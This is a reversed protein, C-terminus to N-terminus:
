NHNSSVDARSDRKVSRALRRVMGFRAKVMPLLLHGRADLPIFARRLAMEEPGWDAHWPTDSMLDLRGIGDDDFCARLTHGFLMQGPAQRSFEEDFAIKHMEFVDGSRVCLQSAILRDGSYLEHVEARGAEGFRTFADRFYAVLEPRKRLANGQPETGKWGAAELAVFRDIAGAMGGAATTVRYEANGLATLKNRAKRLNNRFNKSLGAVHADFSGRCDIFNWHGTDPWAADWEGGREWLRSSADAPGAALLPGHGRSARLHAALAPVLAARADDEPGVIDGLLWAGGWLVAEVRVPLALPADAGRVVPCIARPGEEDRLVYCTLRDGPKLLHDHFARVGEWSQHARCHPMSAALRGWEGRLEDLGESGAHETIRWGPAAPSPTGQARM